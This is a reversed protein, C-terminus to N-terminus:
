NKIFKVLSKDFKLRATAQSVPFCSDIRPHMYIVIQLFMVVNQKFFEM